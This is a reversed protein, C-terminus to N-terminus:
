NELENIIMKYVQKCAEKKIRLPSGKFLKRCRVLKGKYLLSFFVTGVPKEATESGGDANLGTIAVYIDAHILQQLNIALADTVEQSEATYKKILEPDVKLLNIKVKESYCIISGILVDSTGTTCNLGNSALGCTVSEALSVTLQKEILLKILKRVLSKM